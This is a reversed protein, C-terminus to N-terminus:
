VPEMLISFLSEVAETPIYLFSPEPVIDVESPFQFTPFLPYPIYKFCDVPNSATILLLALMFKPIDEIPINEFPFFITFLIPFIVTPAVSTCPSWSSEEFCKFEIPIYAVPPVLTFLVPFM